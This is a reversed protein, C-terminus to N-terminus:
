KRLETDIKDFMYAWKAKQTEVLSKHLRGTPTDGLVQSLLLLPAFDEHSGAPLGHSGSRRCIQHFSAAPRQTPFSTGSKLASELGDSWMPGNMM